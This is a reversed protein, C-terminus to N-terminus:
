TSNNLKNETNVIREMQKRIHKQTYMQGKSKKKDKALHKKRLSPQTEM